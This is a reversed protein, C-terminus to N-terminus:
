KLIIKGDVGRDKFHERDKRNGQWFETYVEGEGQTSCARGVEIKEIDDGSYYKTLLLIM